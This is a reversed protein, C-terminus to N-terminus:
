PHSSSTASIKNYLNVIRAYFIASILGAATGSALGFTTDIKGLLTLLYIIFSGISLLISVVNSLLPRSIKAFAFDVVQVTFPISLYEIGKKKDTVTLIVAHTGPNCADTPQAIFSLANIKNEQLIKIVESSFVIQPSYMKIVVTDGNKLSSEFIQESIDKAWKQSKIQEYVLARLNPNYIRVTFPSPYRKSLYKPHSISVDLEDSNKIGLSEQGSLNDSDDSLKITKNTTLKITKRGENSIQGGQELNNAEQAIQNALETEGQNLLITVAQRLKQTAAGKNGAEAESLAQTQLKFAQVKEVLNMVREDVQNSLKQDHTFNVTLDIAEHQIELNSVSYAANIQAIHFTGAEHPPLMIEALYASGSKDLNDVPVVIAQGQISDRSIDRIMPVIQWVRRTELGQIMHVNITMDQITTQELFHINPYTEILVYVLQPYNLMEFASRNYSCKLIISSPM